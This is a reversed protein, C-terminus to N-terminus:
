QLYQVSLIDWSLQKEVLQRGRKGMAVRNKKDIILSEIKKALDRFNDKKYLLANDNSIRTKDGMTHNAIFPLECSAADNMALSEQRPWVAVDAASYYAPLQSQPQHPIWTIAGHKHPQVLSLCSEKYLEPGNGVILLRVQKYKEILIGFAEFLVHVGKAEIVKGTYIIVFDRHALNHKDRVILRKDKNKAFLDVNTGNPVLEIPATIGYVNKIVDRTKDQTAIFRDTVQTIIRSFFLKFLGYFLKKAFQNGLSLESPLHSDVMILKYNKGFLLCHLALQIASASSVGFVLVIDPSYKKVSRNIGFFLARAFLEVVVPKREVRITNETSVGSQRQRSGILGKVTQDYDHFPFYRNSCIVRVSHGQKQWATLLSIKPYGMTALFYDSVLAIKM